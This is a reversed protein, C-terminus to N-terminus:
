PEYGEMHRLHSDFNDYCNACREGVDKLEEDDTVQAALRAKEQVPLRSGNVQDLFEQKTM